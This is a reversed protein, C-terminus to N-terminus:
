LRKEIFEKPPEVHRYSGYKGINLEIQDRFVGIYGNHIEIYDGVKVVKTDQDWFPVAIRGTPDAAMITVIIHGRALRPKFQAVLKVVIDVHSSDPKLNKVQYRMNDGSKILNEERGIL